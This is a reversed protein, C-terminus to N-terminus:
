ATWKGVGLRKAREARLADELLRLEREDVLGMLEACVEIPTPWM